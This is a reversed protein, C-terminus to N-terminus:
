PLIIKQTYSKQDEFFEKIHQYLPTNYLVKKVSVVSLKRGTAGHIRHSVERAVNSRFPIRQLRGSDTSQRHELGTDRKADRYLFEIHFRFHYILFVVSATIGLDTSFLIKRIVKDGCRLEEIGVKIKGKFSKEKSRPASFAM